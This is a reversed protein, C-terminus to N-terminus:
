ADDGRSALGVLRAMVSSRSFDYTTLAAANGSFTSISTSNLRRAASGGSTAGSDNESGRQNGIRMWYENKASGFVGIFRSSRVLPNSVEAGGDVNRVWAGLVSHRGGIQRENM